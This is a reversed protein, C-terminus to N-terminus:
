ECDGIYSRGSKQLQKEFVRPFNQGGIDLSVSENTTQKIGQDDQSNIVGKMEGGDQRKPSCSKRTGEEGRHTPVRSVLSKGKAMKRGIEKETLAWARTAETEASLGGLQGRPGM